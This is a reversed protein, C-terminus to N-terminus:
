IKDMSNGYMNCIKVNGDHSRSGGLQPQARSEGHYECEHAQRMLRDHCKCSCVGHDHVMIRNRVRGSVMLVLMLVLLRERQGCLM